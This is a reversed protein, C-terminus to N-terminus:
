RGSAAAEVRASFNQVVALYRDREEIFAPHSSNEFVVPACEALGDALVAVHEPRAEEYRGGAILTLASIEALRDTVDWGNLRGTMPGLECPGWMTEYLDGSMGSAARENVGILSCTRPDM